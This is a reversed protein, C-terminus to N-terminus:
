RWIADLPIAPRLGSQKVAFPKESSNCACAFMMGIECFISAIVEYIDVQFRQCAPKQATELVQPLLVHVLDKCLM